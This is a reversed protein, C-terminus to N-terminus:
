SLQHGRKPGNNAMIGASLYCGKLSESPSSARSAMVTEKNRLNSVNEFEDM